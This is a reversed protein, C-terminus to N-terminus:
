RRGTRTPTMVVISAGASTAARVPVAPRCPVIPVDGVRGSPTALTWPVNANEESREASPQRHPAVNRDGCGYARIRDISTDAAHFIEPTSATTVAASTGPEM